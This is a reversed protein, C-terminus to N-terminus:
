VLQIFRIDVLTGHSILRQLMKLRYDKIAKVSLFILKRVM